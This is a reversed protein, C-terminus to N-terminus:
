QIAKEFSWGAYLRGKVLDYSFGLIRSWQALTKTEGHYEIYLNRRTNNAQEIYDVWRCNSPEYNGNNNIRDITLDDSYGNNIAWKYFNNFKRWENCVSIGRAGYNNYIPINQNTCRMIMGNWIRYIRTGYMGHTKKRQIRKLTNLCGCSKTNGSKLNNGSVIVINGCDCKCSWYYRRNKDRHSFEVVTLRGYKEGTLDIVKSM